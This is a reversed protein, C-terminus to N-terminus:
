NFGPIDEFSFGKCGTFALFAIRVHYVGPIFMILGIIILPWTRDGYKSDITGSVLLSGLILFVTGGVFLAFSLLIAKWPIKQPSSQEFQMDVFGDNQATMRHYQVDDHRSSKMKNPTKRIMTINM